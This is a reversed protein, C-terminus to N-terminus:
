LQQIVEPSCVDLRFYIYETEAHSRYLVSCAYCKGNVSSSGAVIVSLGILQLAATVHEVGACM